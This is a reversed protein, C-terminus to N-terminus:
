VKAKEGKRQAGDDDERAERV